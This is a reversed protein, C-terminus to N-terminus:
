NEKLGILEPIFSGSIRFGHKTPMPEPTLEWQRLELTGSDGPRPSFTLYVRLVELKSHAITGILIERWPRRKGQRWGADFISDM